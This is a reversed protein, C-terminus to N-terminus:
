SFFIKPKKQNRCKVCADCSKSERCLSFALSSYFPFLFADVVNGHPSNESHEMMQNKKKKRESEKDDDLERKTRIKPEKKERQNERM